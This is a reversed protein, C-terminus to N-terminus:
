TANRAYYFVATALIGALVAVILTQLAQEASPATPRVLVIAVIWFPVSGIALMLIGVTPFQSLEASRIYPLYRHGGKIAANLIQNGFPYSFASVILAAVSYINTSRNIAGHLEGAIILWVGMLVGIALATGRRPVRYGLMRLVIPSALTTVQWIAAVVWGRLYISALCIGGYFFGCAFTGAVMWFFLIEHFSCRSKINSEKRRLGLAVAITHCHYVRVKPKSDL